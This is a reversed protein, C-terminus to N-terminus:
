KILKVWGNYSQHGSLDSQLELHWIYVDAKSQQGRKNLGDWGMTKDETYFVQEGWRNHIKFKFYEANDVQRGFPFFLDNLGDGNPTFANPIYFDEINTLKIIKKDTAECNNKWAKVTITRYDVALETESYFEVTDDNSLYQDDYEWYISDYDLGTTYAIIPMDFPYWLSDTVLVIEITLNKISIFNNYTLSYLCGNELTVELNVDYHGVDLYLHTPNSETSTNGDGFDWFYNEPKYDIHPPINVIPNFSVFDNLCTATDAEIDLKVDFIEIYLEKTISYDCSDATLVSLTIDYFGTDTYSHTPHQSSSTNGDGFEWLWNTISTSYNTPIISEDTFNLLGDICHITDATFAAEVEFVEVFISDEKFSNSCLSQGVVKILHIGPSSFISQYSISNTDVEIGDLFWKVSDVVGQTILGFEHSNGLCFQMKPWINSLELDFTELEPDIKFVKTDFASMINQSYATPLCNFTNGNVCVAHYIQGNDGFQSTGGDVHDGTYYTGYALNIGNPSLAGVYMGGSPLIYDPTTSFTTNSYNSFLIRNCDDVKFAGLEINSGSGMKNTSIVNSLQANFKSIYVLGDGFNYVSGIQPFNYDKDIGYIYINSQNDLSIFFAGMGQPPPFTATPTPTSIYTSLLITNLNSSLKTIFGSCRTSDTLSNTQYVGSTTPLNNSLTSGCIYVNNNNDTTLGYGRELNSGGVVHHGLLSSANTDLKFVIADSNNNSITSTTNSYDVGAIDNSSITSVCIIENNSVKVTGKLHDHSSFNIAPTFSIYRGDDSSGGLYTSGLLQSGNQSLISITIDYDGGNNPQYATSSVPFNTANTTGLIVLKESETCALSIPYGNGNTGGLYTSYFLSTGTPNLKNIASCITNPYNQQYSGTNTPYGTNFSIGGTYINGKNDYGATHGFNYGTSGSATAAVLIPDIVVPDSIIEQDIKFSVTNKELIYQCPIKQGNRKLYTIPLQEKILSFSGNITLEDNDITICEPGEYRLKIDEPKAGANLIFDYKFHHSESSYIIMDINPWVNTYTISKYSYVFSKHKTIDNGIFYNSYSNSKQGKSKQNFNGGVFHIKYAFYDMIYESQDKSLHKTDHFESYMEQDSLVITWIPDKEIFITHDTHQIKYDVASTWQGLNEELPFYNNQAYIFSSFFLFFLTFYRM